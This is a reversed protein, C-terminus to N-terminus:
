LHYLHPEGRTLLLRNLDGKSMRGPLILSQRFHPLVAPLLKKELLAIYALTDAGQKTSLEYDANYKQKRLFNLIKEPQSVINNDLNTCRRKFREM